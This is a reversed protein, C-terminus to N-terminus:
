LELTDFRTRPIREREEEEIDRDTRAACLRLLRVIEDAHGPTPRRDHGRQWREAAERMCLLDNNVPRLIDNSRENPLDEEVLIYTERISIFTVFLGMLAMVVFESQHSLTAGKDIQSGSFVMIFIGFIFSSILFGLKWKNM